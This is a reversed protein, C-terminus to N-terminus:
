CDLRRRQLRRELLIRSIRDFLELGGSHGINESAPCIMSGRKAIIDVFLMVRTIRQHVQVGESSAFYKDDDISIYTAKAEAVRKGADVAGSCAETPIKAIEETSVDCLPKKEKTSVDATLAKFGRISIEQKKFRSATKALRFANDLTLDLTEPDLKNTSSFGWSKSDVLTRASVGSLSVIRPEELIGNKSACVTMARKQGRLQVLDAKKVKQSDLCKCLTEFV